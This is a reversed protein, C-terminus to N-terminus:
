RLYPISMAHHWVHAKCSVTLCDQLLGYSQSCHSAQSTYSVLAFRLADTGCEEIGNPFDDKQGQKARQVEKPDLNSGELTEHLGQLIIIM